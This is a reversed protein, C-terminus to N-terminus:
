KVRSGAHAIQIIVYELVEMPPLPQTRWEDREENVLTVPIVPAAPKALQKANNDEAKKEKPVMRADLWSTSRTFPTSSAIIVVSVIMTRSIVENWVIRLKLFSSQHAHL